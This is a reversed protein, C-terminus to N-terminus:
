ELKVYGADILRRLEPGLIADARDTATFFQGLLDARAREDITSAVFSAALAVAEVSERLPSSLVRVAHLQIMARAASYADLEQPPSSVTKMAEHLRGTALRLEALAGQLKVLTLAETRGRDIRRDDSRKARDLKLERWSQIWQAIVISGAGLAFTLLSGFLDM